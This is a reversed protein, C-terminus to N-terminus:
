EFMKFSEVLILQTKSFTRKTNLKPWGPAPGRHWSIQFDGRLIGEMPKPLRVAGIYVVNVFYKVFCLLICKPFRLASKVAVECMESFAAECAELYKGDGFLRNGECLPSISPLCKDGKVFTTGEKDVLYLVFEWLEQLRSSPFCGVSESTNPTFVLAARSCLGRSTWMARRTAESRCGPNASRPMSGALWELDGRAWHPQCRVVASVWSTLFHSSLVSVCRWLWVKWIDLTKLRIWNLMGHGSLCLTQWTVNTASGFGLRLKWPSSPCQMWTACKFEKLCVLSRFAVVKCNLLFQVSPIPSGVKEPISLHTLSRQSHGLCQQVHNETQVLEQKDQVYDGARSRLPLEVGRCTLEAPPNQHPSAASKWAHGAFLSAKTKSM